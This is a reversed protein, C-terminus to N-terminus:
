QSPVMPMNCRHYEFLSIGNNQIPFAWLKYNQDVCCPIFGKQDRYESLWRKEAVKYVTMLPDENPDYLGEQELWQKFDKRCKEEGVEKFNGESLIGETKGQLHDISIGLTAVRYGAEITKCPWIKDYFHNPVIHEDIGLLPIVASRFAMFLSDLLVSPQLTTVRTGHLEMPPGQIGAFNGMTGSGRGGFYDAQNSGVFGILGLLPDHSFEANLRVDWGKEYFIVDNHVLAIIDQPYLDHYLDYVQKLPYYYGVNFNNRLVAISLKELKSFDTEKAAEIGDTFDTPTYAPDSGNDVVIIQFHKRDKVTDELSQVVQKTLEKQNVVPIIIIM